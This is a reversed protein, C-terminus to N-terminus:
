KKLQFGNAVGDLSDWVVNKYDQPSIEFLVATHQVATYHRVHVKVNFIIPQGTLFDLTNITGEFTQRDNIQTDAKKFHAKSFNAPPTPKNKLNSLYLGDFYAAMYKDLDGKSISPIGEIFWLFDYAWYEETKSNGM